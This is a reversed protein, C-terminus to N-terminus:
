RLLSLLTWIAIVLEPNLVEFSSFFKSIDGAGSFKSDKINVVIKNDVVDLYKRFRVMKLNLIIESVDEVVGEISSFNM